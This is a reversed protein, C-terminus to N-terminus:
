ARINLKQGCTYSCGIVRVDSIKWAAFLVVVVILKQKLNDINSEQAERRSHLVKKNIMQCPDTLACAFPVPLIPRAPPSAVTQAMRRM